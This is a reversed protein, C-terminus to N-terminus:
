NLLTMPDYEYNIMLKEKNRLNLSNYDYVLDEIQGVPHRVGM